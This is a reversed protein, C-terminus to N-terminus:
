APPSPGALIRGGGEGAIREAEERGIVFPLSLLGKEGGIGAALELAAEALLTGALTGRSDLVAASKPENEGETWVGAAVAPTGEAPRLSGRLWFLFAASFERGVPGLMGRRGVLRRYTRAPRGPPLGFADEGMSFYCGPPSGRPPTEDRAADKAVRRFFAYGGFRDLSCFLYRRPATEGREATAARGGAIYHASLLETWGPMMGCGSVAAAGNRRFAEHLERCDDGSLTGDGISAAPTGMSACALLIRNEYEACPGVANAVADVGALLRTLEPARAVDAMAWRCKPSLAKAHRKADRINYDVLILEGVEARASLVHAAIRGIFGAAGLLAIKM